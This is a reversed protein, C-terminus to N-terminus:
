NTPVEIPPGTYAFRIYTGYAGVSLTINKALFQDYYTVDLLRAVTLGLSACHDVCLKQVYFATVSELSLALLFPIIGGWAVILSLM